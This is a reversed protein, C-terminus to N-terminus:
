AFIHTDSQTIGSAFLSIEGFTAMNEKAYYPFIIDTPIIFNIYLPSQTALQSFSMWYSDADALPRFVTSLMLSMVKGEQITVVDPLGGVVRARDPPLLSLPETATARVTCHLDLWFIWSAMDGTIIIM